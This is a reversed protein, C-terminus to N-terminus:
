SKCPQSSWLWNPRQMEADWTRGFVPPAFRFVLFQHPSHPQYWCDCVRLNVYNDKCVLWVLSSNESFKVLKALEFLTLSSVLSNIVKSIPLYCSLHYTKHISYYEVYGWTKKTSVKLPRERASWTRKKKCDITQVLSDRYFQWSLISMMQFSDM